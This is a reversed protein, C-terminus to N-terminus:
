RGETDRWHNAFFSRRKVTTPKGDYDMYNFKTKNPQSVGAKEMQHKAVSRKLKRLSGM